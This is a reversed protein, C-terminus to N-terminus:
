KGSTKGRAVWTLVDMERDSLTIQNPWTRNRAVGTLRAKIITELMDFDIPKTVYDDAGLRRGRLESRRDALATLFVFPIHGLRPTLANLRELIEFGSMLPLNIDCLILDPMNKLISVFGEHGDYATIVDFDRAALEEALLGTTERDDEICVIKNRVEAMTIAAKDSPGAQAPCCRVSTHNAAYKGGSLRPLYVTFFVQKHQSLHCIGDIHATRGICDRHDPWLYGVGL